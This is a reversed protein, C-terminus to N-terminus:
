IKKLKNLYKNFFKGEKFLETPTSIYMLKKVNRSEKLKYSDIVVCDSIM